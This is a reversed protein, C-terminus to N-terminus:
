LELVRRLSAAVAKVHKEELSGLRRVLRSKSITLVQECKVFSAEKLGNERFPNVAVHFPVAKGKTSVTVVVTNPYHPNTNAADTQIVVAPRM